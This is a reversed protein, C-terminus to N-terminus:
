FNTGLDSGVFRQTQDPGLRNSVTIINKFFFRSSKLKLFDSSSLSLVLYFQWAYLLTFIKVLYNNDRIYDINKKNIM